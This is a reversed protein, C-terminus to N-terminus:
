KPAVNEKTRGGVGATRGCVSVTSPFLCLGDDGGRDGGEEQSRVCREEEGQEGLAMRRERRAEGASRQRARWGGSERRAWRAGGRGSLAAECGAGALRARRRRSVPRRAVDATLRSRRGGRSRGSRAPRRGGRAGLATSGRRPSLATRWSVTRSLTTRSRWGRCSRGQAGEAASDDENTVTRALGTRSRRGHSSQEQGCCAGDRRDRGGPVQIDLYM